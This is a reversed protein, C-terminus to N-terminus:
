LARGMGPALTELEGSAKLWEAFDAFALAAAEPTAGLVAYRPTCAVWM